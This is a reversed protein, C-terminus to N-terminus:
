NTPALSPGLLRPMTRALLDLGPMLARVTLLESSGTPWTSAGVVGSKHAVDGRSEGFSTMLRLFGAKYFHEQAGIPGFMSRINAEKLGHNSDVRARHGDIASSLNASAALNASRVSFPIEVFRLVGNKDRLKAAEHAIMLHHGALTLVRRSRFADGTTDLVLGVLQELFHELEAHVLVRFAHIRDVDAQTVPIFSSDIGM